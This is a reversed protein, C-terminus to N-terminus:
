QVPPLSDLASQLMEKVERQSPSLKDDVLAQKEDPDSDMDFFEGSSYLKYDQTRVYRRKSSAESYAWKRAASGREFLSATFSHGNIPPGEPLPAGAVEALTPLFDSFDVPDDCVTHANVRGPWNAILPVRTGWDTLQGKGGQVVRGHITSFVKPRQFKGNQFTLYSAAATGNDTTYLILTQERLQLDDLAAVLRGIQRDMDEAMEEYTLWRGEPGYPVPKGIDDTVDHCLAMSYYAFFPQKRHRRIFDILFDVYLDPGYKGQTDTRVQGNQYIMPDHYRPGEHWGFLSWEDFGMRGPQQLDKKMLSLQWKGAIATAYGANQLMSAFTRGEEEAPFSGWRPNGLVAPYRGTMLCVRSPHCVPMSYCHNFRKGGHALADLCPTEYSEGGYCGLVERGVDDALVLVINPQQLQSALVPTSLLCTVFLVRISM